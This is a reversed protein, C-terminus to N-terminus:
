NNYVVYVCTFKFSEKSVLCRHKLCFQDKPGGVSRVLSVEPRRHVNSSRCYSDGTVPLGLM